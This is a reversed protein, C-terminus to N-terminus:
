NGKAQGVLEHTHPDVGARTQVRCGLQELDDLGVRREPERLALTDAALVKSLPANQESAKSGASASREPSKLRFASRISV